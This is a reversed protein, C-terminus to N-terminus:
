SVPASGSDVYSDVGDSLIAAAYAQRAEEEAAEVWRKVKIQTAGPIMAWAESRPFGTQILKTIGDIIKAFSRAEGDGWVVESAVNEGDGGTALDALVLVDAWGAGFEVKLDTVMSALTSEAADLADGSLNAMDGLLYQPPVQAIAALQQVLMKITSVYNGLNSEALDFIKTDAGPFVMLRDAGPRGPSAVLPIPNGNDDLIMKGDSDKRYMVNGDEDRLRPDFGTAVRQRYASFQAAILLNFRMTDITRQMPFLPRIMSLARGLSDREPVFEVFPVRGIPNVARKEESWTGGRKVWQVVADPTYVCAYETEHHGKTVIWRKVASTAEFASFPDDYFVVVKAPSEPTIVPRGDGSAGVSVVGRGHVLADVYVIRQRTDLRNRKWVRRWTEIDTDQSADTRFGDVRMRQVPAKVILRLWPAVAMDRLERYPQELGEAAFPRQHNGRYFNDEELWDTSMADLAQVGRTRLGEFTDM